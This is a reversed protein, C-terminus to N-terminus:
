RVGIPPRAGLSSQSSHASNESDIHLSAGSDGSGASASASGTLSRVNKTGKLASVGAHQEVQQPAVTNGQGPPYRPVPQRVDGPPSPRGSMPPGMYGNPPSPRGNGRTMHQPSYPNGPSQSARRPYPGASNGYQLEDLRAATLSGARSERGLNARDVNGYRNSSYAMLPDDMISGHDEPLDNILRASSRNRNFMPRGSGGNGRRQPNMDIEPNNRLDRASASPAKRNRRSTVSMMDFNDPDIMPVPPGQSIDPYDDDDDDDDFAGHRVSAPGKRPGGGRRMRMEQERLALERQRLMMERERLALASPDNYQAGEEGEPIQEDYMVLHSFEELDAGEISGRRSQQGLPRPPQPYGNPGPRGYGNPGGNMPPPGRRMMGPPMGVPPPGMSSTRARGRGMANGNMGNMPQRPPPASSLRPLPPAVGNIPSTPAGDRPRQQNVLNIHHLLAYLTEIRPTKLGVSQALKIPSGLYTEVEMPRRATFDQYMISSSETNRIMDEMTTQKFNSPFTCEQAEAIRLLEDIVESVLSRIGVKELLAAHSPTEL